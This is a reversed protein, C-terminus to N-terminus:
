SLLGHNKLFSKLLKRSPYKQALHAAHGRALASGKEGGVAERLDALMSAADRYNDTGSQEVLNSVNKLWTEPAAKMAMMRAQRLQAAKDAKQKAKAIALQRLRENEQERLLKCHELLQAVTRTPPSVPWNPSQRGNRIESLLEAKLAVPDESLLRQIIESRRSDNMTAIWSRLWDHQAGDPNCKPIGTSAADLILPDVEFFYFLEGIESPIEGLGFPVPPEMVPEDDVASSTAGCLWLVYLARLDGTILMERLRATANLYRDFNSVEDDGTEDLYPSFELIGATGTKDPTWELGACDLYQSWVDQPFPLGSPLRMRIERGDYNSYTLYIDYGNRLMADVDGRFSGYDYDVTFEWRSYEARSSQREMFELQEETLPRDIARFKVIQYESM